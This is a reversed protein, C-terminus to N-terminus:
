LKWGRSVLDKLFDSKNYDMSKIRHSLSYSEYGDFRVDSTQLLKPSNGIVHSVFFSLWLDEILKGNEPIEWFKQHTLIKPDIVAAGTGAYHVTDNLKFVRKRNKYYDLDGDLFKWCYASKYVEPEYQEVCDKIFNNSFTVDDDIFILIDSDNCVEKAVTFRRFAHSDNGDHRVVIDLGKSYKGVLKDVLHAQDINANSLYLTFDKYSQNNLAKLTQSLRSLRKWTLLVIKVKSM